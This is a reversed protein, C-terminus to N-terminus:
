WSKPAPALRRVIIDNGPVDTTALIPWQELYARTRQDPPYETSTVVITAGHTLLGQIIRPSLEYHGVSWGYRRAYFLFSPDPHNAVNYSMVVLDTDSTVSAIFRGAAEAVPNTQYFRRTAVYMSSGVYCVLVAAAVARGVRAREGTATWCAYIPVALLLSFPAIFPIQYYNHSANLTLFLALYVLTGATWALAFVYYAAVRHRILLGFPVLVWWVTVAIERFM